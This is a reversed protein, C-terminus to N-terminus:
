QMKVRGTSGVTINRTGWPNSVTITSASAANGRSNFAVTISTLTLGPFDSSFDRTKVVVSPSPTVRIVQYSSGACSVQFYKNEKVALLRAFQLDTAVERAAARLRYGSSVQGIKPWAIVLLIALVSITVILEMLTLGLSGKKRM